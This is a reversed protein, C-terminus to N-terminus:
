VCPPHFVSVLPQHRYLNSYFFEEESIQAHPAQLSIAEGLLYAGSVEQEMYNPISQPQAPNTDTAKQLQKMLHCKGNCHMTPIFRNECLNKAIYNKNLAYEVFPMMPRLLVTVYVALLFISFIRAM